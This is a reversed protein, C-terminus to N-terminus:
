VSGLITQEGLRVYRAEGNWYDSQCSFCTRCSIQKYMVYDRIAIIRILM